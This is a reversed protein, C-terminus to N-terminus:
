THEPTLLLRRTPMMHDKRSSVSHTTERPKENQERNSYDNMSALCNCELDTNISSDNRASDKHKMQSDAADTSARSPKQYM